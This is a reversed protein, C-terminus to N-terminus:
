WGPGAAAGLRTTVREADEHRGQIRYLELADRWASSARDHEGLHVHVAGLRELTTAEEYTAGLETYLHLARRHLEAARPYDAQRAHLVALSALADAEGRRDNSGRSLTLANRCHSLATDFDALEVAYSGIRNLARAEWVTNGLQRYLPLATRAHTIARRHDGGTAHTQALVIQAHAQAPVDGHREALTLAEQLHALADELRGMRTYTDALMRHALAETAYAGLSRAARLGEVWAAVDDALFGRRLNFTTMAWALQWVAAHDRDQVCRDLVAILNSREAELWRLAAAESSLALPAAGPTATGLDVEASHPDLLRDARHGTQLYFDRLRASAATRRRQPVDAAAVEAAFLRVLDHMRFRDGDLRQVLSVKELASLAAAAEAVVGGILATAAATSIDPGPALGLLGFLEALAPELASYSASLVARISAAPDPDDLAGLRTNEHELEAVSAELPKHPEVAARAAVISLALPLGACYTVLASVAAPDQALRTAPLRAALLDHSEQASLVDLHVPRAGHASVLGVMQERSTVIVTCGPSGPLLPRVQEADRANDLLLLMRREALLSRFLASRAELGGPVSDPKVGLADLFGHLAETPHVPKAGPGYGRLNVYLQGDPFRDLHRHAWHLALWTKGVGGSGGIASIVATAGTTEDELLADDLLALQAARGTFLRPRGPLQRPVPQRDPTRRGPLLVPDALLIREHLTRLSRGPDCGLEDALRRRLRDYRALAEAARGDQYLALLHQGAVRENLPLAESLDTLEDVVDRYRGHELALDIRDLNVAFRKNELQQRLTNFWPTDATAFPEGRWLSLGEGLLALRASGEAHSAEDLLKTFRHLDVAVPAVLLRYGGSERVLDVGATGSLARRLRHIYGYLTNRVSYPPRDGWVRDILKDAPLLHNAEVLLAALVLRQRAHGLLLPHGGAFGEIPGLLRFEIPM